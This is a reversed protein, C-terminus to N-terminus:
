VLKSRSKKILLCAIFLKLISRFKLNIVMLKSFHAM